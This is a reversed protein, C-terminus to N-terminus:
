DGKKLREAKSDAAIFVLLEKIVYLEQDIDDIVEELQTRDRNAVEIQTKCDVMIEMLREDKEVREALLTTSIDMVQQFADTQIGQEHERVDNATRQKYPVVIKVYFAWVGTIGAIIPIVIWTFIEEFTMDNLTGHSLM